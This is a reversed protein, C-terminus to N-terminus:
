LLFLELKVLRDRLLVFVFLQEAVGIVTCLRFVTRDCWVVVIVVLVGREHGDRRARGHEVQVEAAWLREGERDRGSRPGHM